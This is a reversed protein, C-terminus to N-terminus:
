ELAVRVIIKHDRVRESAWGSASRTQNAMSCSASASQQRTRRYMCVCVVGDNPVMAVPLRACVCVCVYVTMFLYIARRVLKLPPPLERLRRRAPKAVEEVSAAVSSFPAFLRTTQAAKAAASPLRLRLMATMAAPPRPEEGEPRKSSEIPITDDAFEREQFDLRGSHGM